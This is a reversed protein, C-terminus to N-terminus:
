LFSLIRNEETKRPGDLVQEPFLYLSGYEGVLVDLSSEFDMGLDHAFQFFAVGLPSFFSKPIV